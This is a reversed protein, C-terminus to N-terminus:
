AGCRVPAAGGDGVLGGRQAVGELGAAGARDAGSEVLQVGQAAGQAALTASQGAGELLVEALAADVAGDGLEAHDGLLDGVGTAVQAGPQSGLLQGQARHQGGGAAPQDALGEAERQDDGGPVVRQVQG